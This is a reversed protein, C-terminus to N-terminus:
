FKGNKLALFLAIAGVVLLLLLSIALSIPVAVNDFLPTGKNIRIVIFTIVFIIFLFICGFAIMMLTKRSDLM